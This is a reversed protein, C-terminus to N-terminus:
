TSSRRRVRGDGANSWRNQTSIAFALVGPFAQVGVARVDDSGLARTRPTAVPGVRVLRRCRHGRRAPQDGHRVATGAKVLKATNLATSINSTAQPVLYYPVRLAVGHNQSGSPTLTVLGAVDNFASSDGATAAPVALTVNVTATGKAPSGSPTAAWSSATRAARRARPPRRHLHGCETGFNHVKIQRRDEPLGPRTRRLRLQADGHRRRRAGRGPDPHRGAAQILGAAPVRTAYDAVKAPDATNVIAAKWYKVKKWKPHAQKVLAAM